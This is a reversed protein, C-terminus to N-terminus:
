VTWEPMQLDAETFEQGKELRFPKDGWRIDRTAKYRKVKYRKVKKAM